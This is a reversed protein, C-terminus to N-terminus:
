GMSKEAVKCFLVGALTSVLTALIAPGVIATPSVSGYQSRYAIMNVPILQLSSINIILFTCMEKSAVHSNGKSEEIKKLEEEKLSIDQLLGEKINNLIEIKDDPLIKNNLKNYLIEVGEKEAEADNKKKKVAEAIKSYIETGTLMELIESQQNKSSKLFTSFEGQALMVSRVFQEYSLGILEQIKSNVGKVDNLIVIHNGNIVKELKRRDSVDYTGTRKKRVYWTAIYKDNNVTFHLESKAENTGKRFINIVSKTKIGNDTAENNNVSEYRSVRDYLALTIADLITSKGSGTDGCILFLSENLLLGKTFDIEASEISNLNQIILKEIKM